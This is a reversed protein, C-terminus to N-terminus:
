LLRQMSLRAYEDIDYTREVGSAPTYVGANQKKGWLADYKGELVKPAHRLDVLWDFDARWGFGDQGTLIPSQEAKEFLTHIDRPDPYQRLLLTIQRRRPLSIPLGIGPLSPCTHLYLEAVEDPTLM